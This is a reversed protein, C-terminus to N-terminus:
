ECLYCDFTKPEGLYFGQLFDVQLEKMIIYVEKSHIYEAVTKAHLDKAMNIINKVIIKSEESKDIEKILSGDIKIIDPKLKLINEMSSYGSGFDDIAIKCGYKRVYNSFDEVIRFDEIFDSELIEFIVNEPKKFLKIKQYIKQIFAENSIDEYSLNMSFEIDKNNFIKMSKDIMIEMMSEYLKIKKATELYPFVSLANKSNEPILRMLCEYKQIQKTNTDFIPQIFPEIKGYDLVNKLLVVNEVFKTQEEETYAITLIDLNIDIIKDVSTLVEFRKEKIIIDKIFGRVYSFAANVYHAPLGIRVHIESIIHLQEFYEEEYKGCFLNLYWLEIGKRHRELIEENHLFTQAHNFEFIFKYFGELLSDTHNLALDYISQLHNADQTTFKYNKIITRFNNKKVESIQKYKLDM